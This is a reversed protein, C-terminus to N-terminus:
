RVQEWNADMADSMKNIDRGASSLKLALQIATLSEKRDKGLLNSMESLLGKKKILKLRDRCLKMQLIRSDGEAFKCTLLMDMVEFGTDWMLAYSGVELRLAHCRQVSIDICRIKCVAIADVLDADPIIDNKLCYALREEIAATFALMDDLQKYSEDFVAKLQPM